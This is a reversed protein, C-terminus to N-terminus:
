RPTRRPGPTFTVPLKQVGRTTGFTRVVGDMDIRYDPLRTLVEELLVRMQLRALPAGLCHHVGFGFALHDKPRRDIDLEEANPYHEEDHNGAAYMLLVRDGPKFPVGSLEAGEKDVTRAFGTVPPDYRLLEDIAKPILAPDDALRQRAEPHTGLHLLSNGMASSTTEHGALGLVQCYGLQEERTLNRGKFKATVLLSAFDDTPNAARDDLWDNFYGVMKTMVAFAQEYRNTGAFDLVQTSWLSFKSWDRPPLGIFMALSTPSIPASLTEALDGRGDEIIEDIAETVIRRVEPELSKTRQASYFPAVLSRYHAHDPPDADIPLYPLPNGLNPIPTGERSVYCEPNTAAAVVDKYRMAAWFGGYQESRAVPCEERVARFVPFPNSSFAEDYHDFNTALRAATQKLEAPDWDRVQM